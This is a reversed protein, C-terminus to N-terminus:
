YRLESVFAYYSYKRYCFCLKRKNIILLYQLFWFTVKGVLLLIAAFVSAVKGFSFTFLELGLITNEKFKLESAVKFKTGCIKRSNMATLYVRLM